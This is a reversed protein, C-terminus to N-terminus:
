LNAAEIRIWVLSWERFQLRPIHIKELEDIELHIPLRLSYSKYYGEYKITYGLLLYCQQKVKGAAQSGMYRHWVDKTCDVKSFIM